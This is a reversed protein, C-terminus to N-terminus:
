LAAKMARLVAGLFTMEVDPAARLVAGGLEIEVVSAVRTPGPEALVVPVFGGQGRERGVATGAFRRRWAYLQNPHVGYRLAVSRAVMGPASSEAVIRKKEEASWQRRRGAEWVVAVPQGGAEAIRFRSRDGDM